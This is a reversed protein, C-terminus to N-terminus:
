AAIAFGYQQSSLWVYVTESSDDCWPSQSEDVVFCNAEEQRQLREKKAVVCKVANLPSTGHTIIM